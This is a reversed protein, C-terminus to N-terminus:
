GKQVRNENKFLKYLFQVFFIFILSYMLAEFTLIVYKFPGELKYSLYYLGIFGSIISVFVFSINAYGYFRIVNKKAFEKEDFLIGDINKPHLVLKFSKEYLNPIDIVTSLIWYGDLKIVPIINSFIMAFNWIAFTACFSTKWIDFVYFCAFLSFILGQVFIGALLTIIKERKHKFTRIGSVDCYLAPSFFILLFGIEKVDGGFYKCSVAHGLEHLFIALITLLYFAIYDKFEFGSLFESTFSDFNNIFCILGFLIFLISCFLFAVNLQLSSFVTETFKNLISNPDFLKVRYFLVNKKEKKENGIIGVSEFSAILNKFDEETIQHEVLISEKEKRNIIDKLIEAERFGIRFYKNFRHIVYHSDEKIFEISCTNLKKIDLFIM